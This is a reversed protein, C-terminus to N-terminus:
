QSKDLPSFKGDSEAAESSSNSKRKKATTAPETKSNQRDDASKAVWSSRPDEKRDFHAKAPQRANNYKIVNSPRRRSFEYAEDPTKAEIGDEFDDLTEEGEDDQDENRPRPITDDRFLQEFHEDPVEAEISDNDSRFAETLLDAAEVEEDESSQNSRQPTNLNQIEDNDSDYEELQLARARTTTSPANRRDQREVRQNQKGHATQPTSHNAQQRARPANRSEDGDRSDNSPRRDRIQVGQGDDDEQESSSTSADTGSKPEDGVDELVAVKRHKGPQEDHDPRDNEAHRPVRSASNSATATTTLSPSSKARGRNQPPALTSNQAGDTAESGAQRATRRRPKKWADDPDGAQFDNKPPDGKTNKYGVFTERDPDSDIEYDAAKEEKVAGLARLGYRGNERKNEGTDGLTDRSNLGTSQTEAVTNRRGTSTSTGSKASGSATKKSSQGPITSTKTSSLARNSTEEEIVEDRSEESRGPNTQANGHVAPRKGKDSSKSTTQQSTLKQVSPRSAEQVASTVRDAAASPQTPTITAPDANSQPAFNTPIERARATNTVQSSSPVGDSGPVQPLVGTRAHIHSVVRTHIQNLQDLSYGPMWRDLRQDLDDSTGPDVPPYISLDFEQGPSDRLARRSLTLSGIHAWPDALQRTVSDRFQRMATRDDNADQQITTLLGMVAQHQIQAQKGPTTQDSTPPNHDDNPNSM